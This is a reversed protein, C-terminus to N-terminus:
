RHQGTGLFDEVMNGESARCSQSTMAKPANSPPKVRPKV